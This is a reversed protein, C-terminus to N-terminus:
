QRVKIAAKALEQLASTLREFAIVWVTGSVDRCRYALQERLNEM